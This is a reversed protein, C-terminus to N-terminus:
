PKRNTTHARGSEGAAAPQGSGSLSYEISFSESPTSVASHMDAEEEEAPGYGGGEEGSDLDDGLEGGDGGDGEDDEQSASRMSADGGDGGLSGNNADSDTGPEAAEEEEEEEESSTGDSSTGDRGSSGDEDDSLLDQYLPPLAGDVEAGAAASAAAALQEQVDQAQFRTVVAERWVGMHDVATQARRSHFM